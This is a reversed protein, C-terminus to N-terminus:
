NPARLAVSSVPDKPMTLEYLEGDLWSQVQDDYHRSAPNGSQGGPIVARIKIPERLEAVVRVTAGARANFPRSYRYRARALTANGGGWALPGRSFWGDLGPVAGHLEHQFSVTHAQSWRHAPEGYAEISKRRALELSEQLIEARQGRWWPSDAADILLRDLAHNVLYNDGLVREMLDDDLYEAFVNRAIEIYWSEWLLAGESDANNSPNASWRRLIEASPGDVFPLMYPLLLEAQSNYEDLQMSQMDDITLLEGDGLLAHLRRMRYGPANDASVLPLGSHVRANAAAVYGSIPDLLAPLTTDDIHGQWANEPISGDQPFLGRGNGRKPILGITRFAIRGDVDAYTINGTPAAHTNIAAEFEGWSQATNMALLSAMGRDVTDHGTWRLAIPPNASILPGNRTVTREVTVPESEGKVQITTSEINGDYWEDGWRFRGDESRQEVYLDQTDGINTIGWALRENFGNIVGPMGPLSWGRISKGDGYFLHLEYFLNPLNLADHSDFAFLAFGTTTRWPAVSWGNSGLSANPLLKREFADLSAILRETDPSPDM